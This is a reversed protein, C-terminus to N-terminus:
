RRWPLGEAETSFKDVSLSGKAQPSDLTGGVQGDFLDAEGGFAPFLHLCGLLGSLDSELLLELSGPRGRRRLPYRGLAQAEWARNRQSVRLRLAQGRRGSSSM